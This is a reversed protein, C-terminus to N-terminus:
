ANCKSIDNHYYKTQAGEYETIFAEGLAGYARITKGCRSCTLFQEPAQDQTIVDVRNSIGNLQEDTITKSLIRNLQSRLDEKQAPALTM